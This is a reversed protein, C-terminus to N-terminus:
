SCRMFGVKQVIGVHDHAKHIETPVRNVQRPSTKTLYQVNAETQHSIAYVTYKVYIACKSYLHESHARPICSARYRFFTFPKITLLSENQYINHKAVEFLPWLSWSKHPPVTVRIDGLVWTTNGAKTGCCKKNSLVNTQKM